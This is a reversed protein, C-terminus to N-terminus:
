GLVREMECFWLCVGKGYKVDCVFDSLIINRM